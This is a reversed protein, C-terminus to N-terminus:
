FGQFLIGTAFGCVMVAALAVMMRWRYRPIRRPRPRPAPAQGERLARVLQRATPRAAPNKDLCREAMERLPGEMDGLDPQASTVRRLVAADPGTGFPARGTAAYVLTAGWAFVDAPPGVPEDEVQEPATYAPAGPLATGGPVADLARATGLGVVKAGAQGLLVNGPRFDGHVTGARHTAALSAATRLAVKRLREPPLPGEREVVERLSPGEVFESVIYPRDGGVDADLVRATHRGTVQLAAETEEALRDHVRPGAGPGAPLPRVAVLAGDEGRGLYVEGQAGDGGEDLREILHYGGLRRPDGPLLPQRRGEEPGEDPGEDATDAARAPTLLATGGDRRYPLSACPDPRGPRAGGDPGDPSSRDVYPRAAADGHAREGAPVPALHPSPSTTRM